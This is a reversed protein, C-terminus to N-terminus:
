LLRYEAVFAPCRQRQLRGRVTPEYPAARGLWRAVGYLPQDESRGYRPTLTRFTSPKPLRDLSPRYDPRRERLEPEPCAVLASSGCQLQTLGVGGGTYALPHDDDFVGGRARAIDDASPRSNAM